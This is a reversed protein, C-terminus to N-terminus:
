GRCAEDVAPKLPLVSGRRWAGDATIVACCEGDEIRDSLAQASFGAFVVSHIAGIRACALVAMALEPIMPMYIAVRDGKGIGRAKLANAMRSVEAHLERYTLNRTDGPEGEWRIAIKDGREELHQDLCVASANLKGGVFWKARPAESWDLVREWRQIWPLEEAVRGWFTEPQEISEAYLRRYEDMSKLRARAQFEPPPPFRRTEKLVNEIQSM